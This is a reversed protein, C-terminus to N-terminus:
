RPNSSKTVPLREYIAQYRNVGLNLSFYEEAAARIDRKPLTELENIANAAEAYDAHNFDKLLRGVRYRQFIHDVDGVGANAVVPIEMSLLEGLKTPSSSKKSYVPRIFFIGLHALSLYTPVEHHAAQTLILNKREINRADAKSRIFDKDDPTIMLFRYAPNKEQLVKYFDLMEDLMYWTGISGLYVLIKDSSAINLRKAIRNASETDVRDKRFRELDVCCPIVDIKEPTTPWREMEEKGAYTLSVVADANKLFAQEKKKFFTYVLKYIPNRLNWLKGDVREDAWFGRMDFIFSCGYRQKIALGVLSSIYSRCHITDINKERVIKKAKFYLMFADFVTSIIPPSKHYAIPAWSIGREQLLSAIKDKSSEYRAPKECSLITIKHELRSLGTLYPIVQSSGLQDTMGDYSIYLVNRKSM